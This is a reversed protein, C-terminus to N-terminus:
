FIIAKQEYAWIAAEQVFDIDVPRNNMEYTSWDSFWDRCFALAYDYPLEKCTIDNAIAKIFRSM